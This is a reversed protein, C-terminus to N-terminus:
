VRFDVEGSAVLLARAKGGQATLAYGSSADFYIADGAGLVLPAYFVSHLVLTGALVLVYAEGPHDVLPGHEEVSAATVDLIVPTLSKSLLETAGRLGSAGGVQAPEGQGARIVARRGSAVPMGGADRAVLGEIDVNLAQCLRVLKDYKLANQGLEARSLTSIPIGTQDSLTALNWGKALRLKRIAAGTRGAGPSQM